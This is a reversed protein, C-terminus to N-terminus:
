MEISCGNYETHTLILHRKLGHLFFQQTVGNSGVCVKGLLNLLCIKWNQIVLMKDSNEQKCGYYKKEIQNTIQELECYAEITLADSGTM